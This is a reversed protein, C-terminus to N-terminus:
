SEWPPEGNGQTTTLAEDFAAVDTYIRMLGQLDAFRRVFEATVEIFRSGTLMDISKLNARNQSLWRAWDGSVEISAGSVRRADIFLHIPGASAILGEMATMARDGFEGIDMGSLRLVVINRSSQEISIKCHVGDFEIVNTPAITM